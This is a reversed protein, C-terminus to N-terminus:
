RRSNGKVMLAEMELVTKVVIMNLDKIYVSNDKAQKLEYKEKVDKSLL